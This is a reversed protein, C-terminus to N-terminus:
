RDIRQIRRTTAGQQSRGHIRAKRTETQRLSSLLVYTIERGRSAVTRGEHWSCQRSPFRPPLLPPFPDRVLNLSRIWPRTMLASNMPSRRTRSSSTWNPCSRRTNRPPTSTPPCPALLVPRLLRPPVMNPNQRPSSLPFSPFPKLVASSSDGRGEQRLPCPSLWLVRYTRGQSGAPDRPAACPSPPIIRM